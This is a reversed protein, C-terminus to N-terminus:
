HAIDRRVRHQVKLVTGPQYPILTGDPLRLRPTRVTAARGVAEPRLYLGIGPKLHLPKQSMADFADGVLVRSPEYEQGLRELEQALADGDAAAEVVNSVGQAEYQAWNEETVVRRQGFVFDPEQTDSSAVEHNKNM